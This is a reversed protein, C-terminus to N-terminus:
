SSQQLGVGQLKVGEVLNVPPTYATRGHTVYAIVAIVIVGAWILPAWNALATDVPLTLPFCCLFSLLCATFCLFRTDSSAVTLSTVFAIAPGGPELPWFGFIVLRVVDHFLHSSM